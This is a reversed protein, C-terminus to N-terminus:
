FHSSLVFSSRHGQRLVLSLLRLLHADVIHLGNIGPHKIYMPVPVHTRRWESVEVSRLIWFYIDALWVFHLHAVELKILYLIIPLASCM